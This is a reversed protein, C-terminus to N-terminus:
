TFSYFSDFRQLIPNSSCIALISVAVSASSTTDFILDGYAPMKQMNELSKTRTIPRSTALSATSLGHKERPPSEASSTDAINTESAAKSLSFNENGEPTQREAGPYQASTGSEASSSPAADDEATDLTITPSSSSSKGLKLRRILSGTKRTLSDRKKPKKESAGTKSSGIM